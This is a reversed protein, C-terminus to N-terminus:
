DTYKPFYGYRPISLRDPRSKQHKITGQVANHSLELQNQIKRISQDAANLGIIQGRQYPTLEIGRKRNTSISALPTHIPPM